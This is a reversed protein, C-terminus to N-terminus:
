GTIIQNLRNIENLAAAHGPHAKDMLAELFSADRSLEARKQKASEASLMATQPQMDMLATDQAMGEGIRLLGELVAESGIIHELQNVENDKFAFYRAANQAKKLKDAYNAGWKQQMNQIITEKQALATKQQEQVKQQLIQVMGDHLITAQETNLGAKFALQKFHEALNADYFGDGSANLTYGAVEKPRGLANFFRAWDDQSAQKSPIQVWNQQNNESM